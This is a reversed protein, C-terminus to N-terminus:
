ESITFYIAKGSVGSNELIEGSQLQAVTYSIIESTTLNETQIGIHVTIIKPCKTM